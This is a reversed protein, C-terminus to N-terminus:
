SNFGHDSRDRWCYAQKGPQAAADKANFVSLIIFSAIVLFQTAVRIASLKRNLHQYGSNANTKKM